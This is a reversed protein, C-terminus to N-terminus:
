IVKYKKYFRKIRPDLLLPSHIQLLNVDSYTNGELIKFGIDTVVIDWGIYPVFRLSSAMTLIKDKIHSWHPICIGEIQSGIEPHNGHWVLKGSYPFSVAKSIKGTRLNIYASLGGQSWNDVPFSRKTGIRHVAAAVFPLNRDIDWMTLIRITNTTKPFLSSAYGAQTVFEQILYNKLESIIIRLRELTEEENNVYIKGQEKSILILDHGGGGVVPKLVLSKYLRLLSNVRQFTESKIGYTKPLHAKYGKQALISFFLMKNTLFEYYLGNIDPTRVWRSYDSVYNGLENKEIDYIIYSESLFGHLWMFLRRMFSVKVPSTIERKLLKWARYLHRVPIPFRNGRRLELKLGM